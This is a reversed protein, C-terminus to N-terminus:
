SPAHTRNRADTLSPTMWEGCWGACLFFLAVVGSLVLGGGGFVKAVDLRSLHSFLNPSMLSILPEGITHHAAGMLAFFTSGAAFTSTAMTAPRTPFVGNEWRIFMGFLAGIILGDVATPFFIHKSRDGLFPESFLVICLYSILMGSAAGFFMRSPLNSPNEWPARVALTQYM